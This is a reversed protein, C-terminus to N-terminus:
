LVCACVCLCACVCVSIETYTVMEKMILRMHQRGRRERVIRSCSGGTEAELGGVDMM